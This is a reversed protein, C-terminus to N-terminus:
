TRNMRLVKLFAPDNSIDALLPDYQFDFHYFQKGELVAHRLSEIAEKHMGLGVYVQAQYYAIQGHDRDDKAKKLAQIVEIGKDHDGARAAAHGYLATFYDIYPMWEPWLHDLHDLHLKLHHAAQEYNRQVLYVRGLRSHAKWQEIGPALSVLEAEYSEIAPSLFASANEMNGILSLNLGAEYQLYRMDDTYSFRQSEARDILELIGPIDGLAALARIELVKLTMDITDSEVEHLYNLAQRYRKRDLLATVYANARDLCYHCELYDITSDDIERSIELAKEPSNILNMSLILARSNVFLNTPALDYEKMFYDYAMKNQGHAVAQFYYFLNREDADMTVEKGELKRFLSDKKEYMKLQDYMSLLLLHARIFTSDISVCKHLHNIMKINDKEWLSVATTYEQLADGRPHKKSFLPHDKSLWFGLIYQGISTLAEYPTDRHTWHDKISKVLRGNSAEVIECHIQLSDGHLFYRGIILNDIESERTFDNSFGFKGMLIEIHRSAAPLTSSSIELQELGTLSHTILHAAMSGIPDLSPDGTQNEFKLVAIREKEIRSLPDVVGKLWHVSTYLLTCIGIVALILVLGTKVNISSLISQPYSPIVREQRVVDKEEIMEYKWSIFIVFPFGLITCIIFLTVLYDPIMLFPATATLLQVAGAATVAYISAVKLVNRQRLEDVLQHLNM